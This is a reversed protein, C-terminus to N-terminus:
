GEEKSTDFILEKKRTRIDSEEDIETVNISASLPFTYQHDRYPIKKVTGMLEHLMIRDEADFDGATFVRIPPADIIVIPTERYPHVLEVLACGGLNILLIFGLVLHICLKKM